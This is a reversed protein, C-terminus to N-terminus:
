KKKSKKKPARTIQVNAKGPKLGTLSVIARQRGPKSFSKAIRARGGKDTKVTTGGFNVSAGMIAERKGNVITTAVFTIRKSRGAVLKNPGATLRVKSDRPANVGPRLTVCGGNKVRNYEAVASNRFSTYNDEPVNASVMVTNFLQSETFRCPTIVQNNETWNRKVGTYDENPGAIAPPALALLGLTVAAPVLSTRTM